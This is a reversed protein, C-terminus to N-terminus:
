FTVTRTKDTNKERLNQQIVNSREKRIADYPLILTYIMRGRHSHKTSLREAFKPKSITNRKVDTKIDARPSKINRCPTESTFM